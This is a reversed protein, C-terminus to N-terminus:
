LDAIYSIVITDGITGLLISFHTGIELAMLTTVQMYCYQVLLPPVVYLGHGFFYPNDSAMFWMASLMAMVWILGKAVRVYFRGLM